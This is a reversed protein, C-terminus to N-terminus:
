SPREPSLRAGALKQALTRGTGYSPLILQQEHRPSCRPGPFLWLLFAYMNIRNDAVCSHLPSRVTALFM